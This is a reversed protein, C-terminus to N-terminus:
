DEATKLIAKERSHARSNFLLNRRPQAENFNLVQSRFPTKRAFDKEQLADVQDSGVAVEMVSDNECTRVRDNLRGERM